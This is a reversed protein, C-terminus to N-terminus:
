GARALRRLATMSLHFPLSGAASYGYPWLFDGSEQSQPSKKTEATGQPLALRQLVPKLRYYARKCVMLKAAHCGVGERSFGTGGLLRPTETPGAEAPFFGTQVGDIERHKV